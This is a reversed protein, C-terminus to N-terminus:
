RILFRKFLGLVHERGSINHGCLLGSLASRLQSSVYTRWFIDSLLSGKITGPFDYNEYIFPMAAINETCSYHAFFVGTKGKSKWVCPTLSPHLVHIICYYDPKQYEDSSRSMHLPLRESLLMEVSGIPLAACGQPDTEGRILNYIGM